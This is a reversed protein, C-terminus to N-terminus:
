RFDNSNGDTYRGSALTPYTANKYLRKQGNTEAFGGVGFGAGGIPPVPQPNPNQTLSSPQIQRSTRVRRDFEITHYLNGSFSTTWDNPNLSAKNIEIPIWRLIKSTKSDDYIAVVDGADLTMYKVFSKWDVHFNGDIYRVAEGNMLYGAQWENGVARLSVTKPKEKNEYAITEHARRPAMPTTAFDDLINTFTAKILNVRDWVKSNPTIEIINNVGISSHKEPSNCNEFVAAVRLVEEGEIHDFELPKDLQLAGYFAYVDIDYLGRGAFAHTFESMVPHANFLAQVYAAVSELSQGDQALYKIEVATDGTGITFNLFEGYAPVGDISITLRAPAEPSGGQFSNSTVTATLGAGHTVTVPLNNAATSFRLGVVRAIEAHLEGVGIILYGSRSEAWKRVNMIPLFTAEAPVEQRIYSYDAPKRIKRQIKGKSSYIKYGKCAPILEKNIAERVPSKERILWNLTYQKRLIDVKPLALIPTDALGFQINPDELEPSPSSIPLLGREYDFRYPTYVGTPKFHRFYVNYNGAQSQDLILQDSQTTDLVLNDCAAMERVHDEDDDFAPNSRGYYPHNDIYKWIAIPNDSWGRRVFEGRENPLDVVKARLVSSIVPADDVTDNASGGIDLGICAIMSNKGSNPFRFDAQQSGKGGCEGLHYSPNGIITFPKTRVRTETFEAVTGECATGVVKIVTGTDTWQRPVIEVQVLGFAEPIMTDYDTTERSSFNLSHTETKTRKRWFQWWSKNTKVQVSYNTTGSIAVFNTAGFFDQNELETCNKYTKEPCGRVGFNNWENQYVIPMEALTKGCRCYKDGFQYLCGKRHDRFPIQSDMHGGEEYCSIQVTEGIEGIEDVRGWWAIHYGDPANPSIIRVVIRAGEVRHTELFEAFKRKGHQLNNFTIDTSSFEEEAIRTMEGWSEVRAEYTEGQWNVCVDSFRGFANKPADASTFDLIKPDYFECVAILFHNRRKLEYRFKKDDIIQM